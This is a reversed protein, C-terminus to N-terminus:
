VSSCVLANFCSGLLINKLSSLFILYIPIISFNDFFRLESINNILIKCLCIIIFVWVTTNTIKEIDRFGTYRILGKYSGTILFGIIFIVLIIISKTFVGDTTFKNFNPYYRLLPIIVLALIVLMIDFVLVYGRSLSNSNRKGFFLRAINTLLKRM